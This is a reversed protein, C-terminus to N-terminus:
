LHKPNEEFVSRPQLSFIVHACVVLQMFSSFSIKWSHDASGDIPSLAYMEPWAVSVFGMSFMFVVAVAIARYEGNDSLTIFHMPVHFIVSYFIVVDVAFERSIFMSIIVIAAHFTSSALTGIDDAFHAVSLAMFVVNVLIEPLLGLVLFTNLYIAYPRRGRLALDSAGHGALTALLFLRCADISLTNSLIALKMVLLLRNNEITSFLWM